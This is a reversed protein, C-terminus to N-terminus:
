TKIIFNIALYPQMNADTGSSGVTSNQVSINAQANQMNSNLTATRGDPWTLPGEVQYKGYYGGASYDVISYQQHKHGPDTVTATHTHAVVNADKSGGTIGITYLGGAGVPGRNTYNPLNFTTSGDGSGFTTGLIAFLAAYATRSVASGNCLLWGTPASVTPWMMLGGTPVSNNLVFATTAVATNATGAPMTPTVIQGGVHLNGAVGAGGAVTVAGTTASTSTTAAAISINGSVTLNASM